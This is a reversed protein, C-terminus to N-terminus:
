ACSGVSLAVAVPHEIARCELAQGSDRLDRWCAGSLGNVTAECVRQLDRLDSVSERLAYHIVVGIEADLQSGSETSAAASAWSRPCGGKPCMASSSSLCNAISEPHSPNSPLAWDNRRTVRRECRHGEDSPSSKPRFRM